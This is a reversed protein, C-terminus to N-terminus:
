LWNDYREQVNILVDFSLKVQYYAPTAYRPGSSRYAALFRGVPRTHCKIACRVDGGMNPLPQCCFASSPARAVFVQDLTKVSLRHIQELEPQRKM